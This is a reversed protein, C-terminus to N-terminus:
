PVILPRSPPNVVQTAGDVAEGDGGSLECTWGSTFGTARHTKVGIRKKARKLASASIGAAKAHDDLERAEMPGDAPIQRLFDEAEDVAPTARAGKPPTLSDIGAATGLFNLRATKGDESGHMEFMETPATERNRAKHHIAFRFADPKGEEGQVVGFEIVSPAVQTFASSLGARDLPDHNARQARSEHIVLIVAVGTRRALARIPGIIRDRARDDMNASIGDCFAKVTDVVLLKIDLEEIAEEIVDLDRPIRIHRRTNGDLVEHRVHVRSPNGGAFRVRREVDIPNDEDTLILTSAAAVGPFKGVSLVAATLAIFMSKGVRPKGFLVAFDGRPLTGSPDLWSLEVAEPAILQKAQELTTRPAPKTFPWRAM